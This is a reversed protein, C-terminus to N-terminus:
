DTGEARVAHDRLDQDCLGPVRIESPCAGCVPCEGDPGDEAKHARYEEESMSKGHKSASSFEGNAFVAFVGSCRPCVGDGTERELREIRDELGM